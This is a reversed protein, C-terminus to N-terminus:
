RKTLPVEVPVPVVGALICGYFASLFALPETNPYILAVRDGPKVCQSRFRYNMPSVRVPDVLKILCWVRWVKPLRRAMDIFRASIESM